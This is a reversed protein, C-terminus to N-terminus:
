EGEPKVASPVPGGYGLANHEGSRPDGKFEIFPYPKRHDQDDGIPKDRGAILIEAAFNLFGFLVVVLCIAMIWRERAYFVRLWWILLSAISFLVLGPLASVAHNIGFASIEGSGDGFAADLSWQLGQALPVLALILLLIITRRLLNENLHGLGCQHLSHIDQIALRYFPRGSWTTV